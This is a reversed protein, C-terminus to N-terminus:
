IAYESYIDKIVSVVSSMESEGIDTSCPISLCNRYLKESINNNTIYISNQFMPLKNMPVWLPRSQLKNKNLAKLLQKQYKSSFTFLWCNSDVMNTISQFKIDDSILSLNSRYFNNIEKKKKIFSSINEMQAVGIAASVNTLRYNYGIMDHYYEFSDSKAQTTIHKALFALKEDDTIIM